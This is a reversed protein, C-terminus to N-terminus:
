IDKPANKGLYKKYETLIKTGIVDISFSEEVHRRGCISFSERLSKERCIQLISSSIQNEDYDVLFGNKGHKVIDAVGGSKTAVVPTGCSLSEALVMGFGEEHSTSVTCLANQFYKVNNEVEGIIEVSNELGLSKILDEYFPGFGNLKGVLKLKIDSKKKKVIVFSRLLLDINKRKSFIGMFLVYTENDRSAIPKYSYKEVDIIPNMVEINAKNLRLDSILNKQTTLSAAFVKHARNAAFREFFIGIKFNLFSIFSRISKVKSFHINYKESKLTTAAWIFFNFKKRSFVMGDLCYGSIVQCIDYNGKIQKFFDVSDLSRLYPISLIEITKINNKKIVSEVYPPMKGRIKPYAWTVECNNKKLYNILHLTKIIVGGGIKPSLSFICIRM